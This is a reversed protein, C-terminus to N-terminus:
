AGAEDESCDVIVSYSPSPRSTPIRPNDYMLAGDEVVVRFRLRIPAPPRLGYASLRGRILLWTKQRHFPIHCGLETCCYPEGAVFRVLVHKGDAVRRM